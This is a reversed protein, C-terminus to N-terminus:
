NSKNWEEIIAKYEWLKYEQAHPISCIMVEDLQMEEQQQKLYAVVEHVAGRIHWGEMQKIFARETDSLPYDKAMDPHMRRKLIGRHLQMRSIDAPWGHYNAEESTKGVTVYYCVLVYPEKCFASPVFKERYMELITPDIDGTFFHVYAYPLGMRAAQVASNGTSGLMFPMPPEVMQPQAIVNDYLAEGCEEDQFYQITQYLKEYMGETLPARGESLAFISARDGGPARGAGFDIRGPAYASLTKFVEAMKLPSYHMMMTGGTGLRISSTRGAIYALSIEPASSALSPTNHHEAIWFRHYGLQEALVASDAMNNLAEAATGEWAIPAQDLISLKM